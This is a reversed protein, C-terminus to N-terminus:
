FQQGIMPLKLAKTESTFFVDIPKGKAFQEFVGKVSYMENGVPIIVVSWRGSTRVAYDNSQEIVNFGDVLVLALKKGKIEGSFEQILSSTNAAYLAIIQKAPHFFLLYQLQADEASRRFADGYALEITDILGSAFLDKVNQATKFFADSESKRQSDSQQRDRQTELYKQTARNATICNNTYTGRYTSPVTGAMEACYTLLPDDAAQTVLSIGLACSFIWLSRLQHLKM